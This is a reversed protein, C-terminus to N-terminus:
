RLRSQRRRVTGAVRSMTVSTVPTADELLYSAVVLELPDALAALANRFTDWGTVVLGTNTADILGSAFIGEAVFPVYLRGRNSAGRKATHLSLVGAIAPNSTGGAQGSFKAGVPTRSASATIGDLPTVTIDNMVAGTSTVQHQNTNWSTEVQAAVSAATWTSVEDHQLHFINAATAGGVDRYTLSVRYTREIIPLPM